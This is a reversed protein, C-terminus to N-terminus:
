EFDIMRDRNRRKVIEQAELYDKMIRVKIWLSFRNASILASLVGAVLGIGVITIATELAATQTFLNFFGAYDVGKAVLITVLGGFLAGLIVGWISENLQSDLLKELDEEKVRRDENVLRTLM